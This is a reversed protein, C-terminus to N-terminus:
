QTTVCLRSNDYEGMLIVGDKDMTSMYVYNINRTSILKNDADAIYVMGVNYASILRNGEGDIYIGTPHSLNGDLNYSGMDKGEQSYVAIHHNNHLAVHINGVPDVAVDWPQSACKITNIFKGETTLIQIRKNNYDAVLVRGKGDTCIGYPASFQEEGTGKGGFEGVFKGDDASYKKIMHNASSTVYLFGDLVMLGRPNYLTGGDNGSNGFESESGDPRFVKITQANFDSAYIVGNNDVAVGYCNGGVNKYAIQMSGFNRYDRSPRATITFPDFPKNRVMITMEYQGPQEPTFALVATGDNDNSQTITVKPPIYEDPDENVKRLQYQLCVNGQIPKDKGDRLVVAMKREKGIGAFPVAFGEVTCKTPDPVGAFYGFAQIQQFFSEIELSVDLMDDERLELSQMQYVKMLQKLRLKIVKKVSLIEEPTHYKIADTAHLQAFHLENRLRMFETYQNLLVDDKEQAIDKCKTQLVERRTEVAQIAEKCAQSINDSEGRARSAVKKRMDEIRHLTDDLAGLIDDDINLMQQLEEKEKVSMKDLYDQQHGNHTIMCCDRCVLMECSACFFKLEERHLPCKAPPPHIKFVSKEYKDITIFNHGEERIFRQHDHKCRKCLFECCKDCFDTAKKVDVECKQCGVDGGEIKNQYMSNKALHSLRLNLPFANIDQPVPFRANCTPCAMKECQQEKKKGRKRIHKDLCNKCFSHLCPLLLPGDKHQYTKECLKCDLSTVPDNAAMSLSTCIKVSKPASVAPIM